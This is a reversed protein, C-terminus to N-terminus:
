ISFEFRKVYISFMLIPNIKERSFLAYYAAFDDYLMNSCM